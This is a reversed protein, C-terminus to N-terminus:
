DRLLGLAQYAAEMTPQAVARAKEAGKSLIDDIMVDDGRLQEFRERIPSLKSV